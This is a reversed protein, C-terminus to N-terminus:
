GSATSLSALCAAAARAKAVCRALGAARATKVFYPKKGAGHDGRVTSRMDASAHCIVQNVTPTAASLVSAIKGNPTASAHSRARRSQGPFDRTSVKTASGSTMGGTAVPSM